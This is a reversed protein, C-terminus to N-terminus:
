EAELVDRLEKAAILLAREYVAACFGRLDDVTGENVYTADAAARRAAEGVLRGDLRDFIEPAIRGAARARRVEAAAEITVVLDFMREANVDVLLPVECVAVGGPPATRVFRGIERMVHPHVFGELDRMARPDVTVIAALGARDVGGAKDFAADGFRAHIAMRVDPRLYLGHVVEDSSLVRAGLDAFIGLATSKGSAVGGTLGVAARGDSVRRREHAHRVMIPDPNHPEPLM